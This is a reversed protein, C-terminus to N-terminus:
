FRVASFRPKRKQLDNVTVVSVYSLLAGSYVSLLGMAIHKISWFGMGIIGFGLIIAAIALLLCASLLFKFFTHSHGKPWRDITDVTNLFWQRHTAIQAQDRTVMWHLARCLLIVTKFPSLLSLIALVIKLIQDIIARKKM